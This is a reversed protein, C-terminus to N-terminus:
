EEGDKSILTDTMMATYTTQAEIADISDIKAEREKAKQEEEEAKSKQFLEEETYTHYMYCDEFTEYGHVVKRLGNPNEETVTGEMVVYTDPTRGTCIRSQYLYGKSEDPTSLEEHTIEDYIKM